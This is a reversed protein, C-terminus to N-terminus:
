NVGDSVDYNFQKQTVFSDYEKKHKKHIFTDITYGISGFIGVIILFAIVLALFDSQSTAKMKSGQILGVAVAIAIGVVMATHKQKPELM